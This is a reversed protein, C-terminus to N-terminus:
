YLCPGADDHYSDQGRGGAPPFYGGGMGIGGGGAAIGIALGAAISKFGITNDVQVEATTESGAPEGEAPSGAALAPLALALTLILVGGLILSRKLFQKMM